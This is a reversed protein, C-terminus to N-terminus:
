YKTRNGKNQIVLDIRKNMSNITRDIIETSYNLITQKVRTCFTNYDERMINQDITQKRLIRRINNFTNEIPNLDPSRAPISFVRFGKTDLTEKALGSNMCPCGDQLFLEGRGNACKRFMKQFRSEIFEKCKEGNLRGEYQYCEIFGKGYSIACLFHAVKGNVGEKSGKATCHRKLSDGKRMWTRTRDTRASEYPQTKHVFSVGDLYFCIGEKWFTPPLTKCKKAFKLRLKLDEQTLLGKKRCQRFRYGQQNLVRRVTRPSLHSVGSEKRIDTGSFNGKTDYLKEVAATIHRVDRPTYKKPRGSSKGKHTNVDNIKKKMHRYITTRKFQPYLEQLHKLSEGQVQHLYRLVLSVELSIRM